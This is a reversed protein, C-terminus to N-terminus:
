YVTKIPLNPSRNNNKDTTQCNPKGASSVTIGLNLVISVITINKYNLAPLPEKTGGLNVKFCDNSRLRGVIM